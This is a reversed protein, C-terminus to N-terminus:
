GGLLKQALNAALTLLTAIVGVTIFHNQRRSEAFGKRMELTLAAIDAKNDNIDEKLADLRARGAHCLGNITQAAEQVAM